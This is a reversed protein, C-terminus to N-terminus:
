TTLQELAEDLSHVGSLRIGTPADDPINRAPLVCHTFGMQAAERVRLAAQAAGRVEGGLGVEGFLVTHPPLARNRFSSAIAAAVGLDAAPEDIELGGAVSVFVDDGLLELGVRKELVALLLNTRNPDIGIAMRRPTGFSTPSVLAQVEVLVPRTGELGALVSSGAVDQQRQSLFLASPNEVQALGENCMEFVGIEDTPGFRNKVARLIRFQHSRDGEFYLVTDVMHELVRPGAIQGDKTVHGVLLAAVGRKKAARIIEHASTRVQTVTGPASEVNDVYMTQISDIVILDLPRSLDEITSVIDRVNTASALEVPADALGLRDARLRVQDIAEEGSVYACRKGSLALACVAQLLLTSKGIGPDGGILTASGPVLGGGTVRDFEAIGAVHRPLKKSDEGRLDSFALARGKKGASMGKPVAADSAEEAICNWENCAECKGSWKSSVAGCSQCVYTRSAKAMRKEVM